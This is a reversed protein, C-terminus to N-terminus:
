RSHGLSRDILQRITADDNLELDDSGHLPPSPPPPSSPLELVQYRTGDFAILDKEILSNRAVLYREPPWRLLDCLREYGYYSMGQRNGALVLLMYLLIEDGGLAAFFGEHLFRNPIYAWGANGPTRVREAIIPPPQRRARSAQSM